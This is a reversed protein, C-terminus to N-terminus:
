YYSSNLSNKYLSIEASSPWTLNDISVNSSNSQHRSCNSVICVCRDTDSMAELLTPVILDLLKMSYELTPQSLDREIKIKIPFIILSTHLGLSNWVILCKLFLYARGKFFATLKIKTPFNNVVKVSLSKRFLRTQSKCVKEFNKVSVLQIFAM